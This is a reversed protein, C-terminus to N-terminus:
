RSLGGAPHHSRCETPGGRNIDHAPKEMFATLAATLATLSWFMFFGVSYVAMPSWRVPEGLLYLEKPDIFVFFVIEGLAATLFSLWLINIWRLM